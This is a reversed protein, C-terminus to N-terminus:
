RASLANRNPPDVGMLHKLFFDKMRRAGYAGGSGHGAGPVVVLDAPNTDCQGVGQTPHHGPQGPASLNDM